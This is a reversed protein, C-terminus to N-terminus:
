VGSSSPQGLVHDDLGFTATASVTALGAVREGRIPALGIPPVGTGGPAVLDPPVDPVVPPPSDPPLETPEVLPITQTPTAQTTQPRPSVPITPTVIPTIAEFTLPRRPDPLDATAFLPAVFIAVVIAAHAFISVALTWTRM